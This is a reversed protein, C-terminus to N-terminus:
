QPKIVQKYVGVHVRTRVEDVSHESEIRFHDCNSVTISSAEPDRPCPVDRAIELVRLQTIAGAGHRLDALPNSLETLPTTSGGARLPDNSRDGDTRMLSAMSSALVATAAAEAAALSDVSEQNNRNLKLSRSVASAMSFSVFAAVTLLILTIALVAGGRVRRPTARQGPLSHPRRNSPTMTATMPSNM